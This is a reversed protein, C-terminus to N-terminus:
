NIKYVIRKQVVTLNRSSSGLAKFKWQKAASLASNDLLDNGSSQALIVKQMSGDNLIYLKLIVTGTIGRRLALRPYSPQTFALILSDFAQQPTQSQTQDPTEPEVKEDIPTSAKKQSVLKKVVPKKKKKITSPAPKKLAQQLLVRVSLSETMEGTSFVLESGGLKYFIVAGHILATALLILKFRQHMATSQPAYYM